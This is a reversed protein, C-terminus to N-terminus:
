QLWDKRTIGAQKLMRSLLDVGIDNEHPNPLTLRVRGRIMFQHKGGSHPGNFGLEKLRSILESRTVPVLKPM